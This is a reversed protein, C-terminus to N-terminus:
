YVFRPKYSHIDSCSLLNPSMQDWLRRKSLLLSDSLQPPLPLSAPIFGKESRWMLTEVEGSAQALKTYTSDGEWHTQQEKKGEEMAVKGGSTNETLETPL